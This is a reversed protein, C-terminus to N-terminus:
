NDISGADDILEEDLNLNTDRKYPHRGKKNYEIRHRFKGQPDPKIWIKPKKKVNKKM